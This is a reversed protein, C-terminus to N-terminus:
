DNIEEEDTNVISVGYGLEEGQGCGNGDDIMKFLTWQVRLTNKKQGDYVNWTRITSEYGDITIYVRDLDWDCILVEHKLGITKRLVKTVLEELFKTKTENKIM